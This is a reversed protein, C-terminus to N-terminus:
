IAGLISLRPDNLKGLITQEFTPSDSGEVRSWTGIHGRWGVISNIICAHAKIDSGDLVITDRLRTGAAITVDHGITM